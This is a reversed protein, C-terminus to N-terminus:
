VTEFIYGVMKPNEKLLRVSYAFWDKGFPVYVRNRHGQSLIIDRLEESMGYPMQFKYLGKAVGMRDIIKLAQWVLKEDHTAIATICGNSLLKELLYAYSSNIIDMDKYVTKKNEWCYAGKCLRINANNKIMRNIDDIGSRIYAQMAIGVNEYDQKLKLFFTITDQKLSVDEMDIRVFINNDNTRSQILRIPPWTVFAGSNRAAKFLSRSAWIFSKEDV